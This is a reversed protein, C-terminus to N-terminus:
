HDDSLYDPAPDLDGAGRGISMVVNQNPFAAMTADVMKVGANLMLEPTYGAARWNTIDDSTNPIDWDGTTGSIFSCAVVVISSHSAFHDGAAQILATKKALFTPDWYLPMTLQQGYTSHYPNDDIFSFTQVKPLLWAPVNVGGALLRLVVKKGHSEAKALESDIFSWNYVGETKEINTWNDGLDLGVIRADNLILDPFGNKEVAPMSFIGKPIPPVAGTCRFRRSALLIAAFACFM